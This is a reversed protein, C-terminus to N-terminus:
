RQRRLIAVARAASAAVQQDRDRVLPEIASLADVVGVNALADCLGARIRADPERLYDLVEPLARNGFEEVYARSQRFLDRSGGLGMVVTDIFPRDGFLFIAFAYAARVEENKERQFARKFRAENGTDGLRALGEIGARRRSAEPQLAERQFLPRDEPLALQALASLALIGDTSDPSTGFLRRLGAAAEAVRLRGLGAIARRRVSSSPDGILPSLAEGDASTGVKVLATVAAARVNTTVDGLAGLLDVAVETGGLIGIAEAASERVDPDSDKLLGALSRYVQLDVPTLVMPEPKDRGDSFISLFKSARPRDRRTYIEVVGDIAESRLRSMSDAMFVVMSPVGALERLSAIGRLVALRVEADPDRVLAALRPLADPSKSKGLDTATRRRVAPNESKLGDVPGEQLLEASFVPGADLACLALAVLSVGLAQRAIGWGHLFMQNM